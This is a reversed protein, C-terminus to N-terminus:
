EVVLKTTSSEGNKIAKVLYIGKALYKLTVLHEQGTSLQEEQQVKGTIDFLFLQAQEGEAINYNFRVTNRAPNPYAMLKNDAMSKLRVIKQVRPAVQECANSINNLGMDLLINRAWYVAIGDYYPCLQAIRLLETSDQGSLALGLQQKEQILTITSLAADFNNSTSMARNNKGLARGMNTNKMSDKFATYSSDARAAISDKSLQWYLLQQNLRLASDAAHQLRGMKKGRAMHQALVNGRNRIGNGRANGNQRLLVNCGLVATSSAANGSNDKQIETVNSTAHAPIILPDHVGGNQVYLTCLGGDSNDSFTESFGFSGNWENDAAIGDSGVNGIFGNNALVFGYFNNKMNNRAVVTSANNTGGFQLGIGTNETKNCRIESPIISTSLSNELSIGIVRPENQPSSSYNATHNVITNQAVNFFEEANLVRIGYAPSPPPCQGFPACNNQQVFNDNMDEITNDLITANIFWAQIGIKAHKISNNTILNQLVTPNNVNRVIIGFGDSNQKSTYSAGSQVELDMVNNGISADTVAETLIGQTVNYVENFSISVLTQDNNTAHIFASNQHWPYYNTGDFNYKNNTVTMENQGNVTIATRCQIFTNNTIANKNAILAPGGFSAPNTLEISQERRFPQTFAYNNFDTFTMSRIDIDANNAYIGGARGNLSGSFNGFDNFRVGGSIGQGRGFDIFDQVNIAIEPYFTIGNDVLPATCDFECGDIRFAARENGNFPVATSNIDICRMNQDFSTNRIYSTSEFTQSNYNDSLDTLVIGHRMRSIKLYRNSASANADGEIILEAGSAGDVFIGDWFVGTSCPKIEQLEKDADLIELKAGNSVNIRSNAAMVFECDVFTLDEDVNFVGDIEIVADRIRNRGNSLNTKVWGADEGNPISPIINTPSEELVVNDITVYGPNTYASNEFGMILLRNFAGNVTINNFQFTLFSPHVTTISAKNVTAILQANISVPFNFYNVVTEYPRRGPINALTVDDTLWIQVVDPPDDEFIGSGKALKISLDVVESGLTSRKLRNVLVESNHDNPLGRQTFIGAYVNPSPGSFSTFLDASTSEDEWECAYGQTVGNPARAGVGAVSLNQFNGNVTFIPDHVCPDYVIPNCPNTTAQPLYSLNFTVSEPYLSLNKSMKFLYDKGITLSDIISYDTITDVALSITQILLLGDCEEEGLEYVHISSIVESRISAYEDSIMVENYVNDATYKFFMEDQGEEFTYDAQSSLELEYPKQCSHGEQASLLLNTTLFLVLSLTIAKM